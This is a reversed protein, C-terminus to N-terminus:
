RRRPAGPPADHTQPNGVRVSSVVGIHGADHVGPNGVPDVASTDTEPRSPHDGALLRDLLQTQPIRGEIHVAPRWPRRDGLSGGRPPRAPPEEVITVRVDLMALMDTMEPLTMRPLERAAAEALACLDNMRQAEAAAETQWAEREAKLRRAEGLDRELEAAAQQLAGPNDALLGAKTARTLARELRYIRAELEAMEEREVQVQGARLGLYDGVCALLEEPRSLLAVLRSWVVQEIWGAEIRHAKCRPATTATWRAARCRYQRLDRDNRWVGGFPEGCVCILRGSLPYPHNPKKVGYARRALADQVAQWQEESLIPEAQVAKAEGYRGTAVGCEVKGWAFEGRLGRSRLKRALNQHAWDSGYPTRYGLHNLQRCIEGTTLGHDVLLETALRAIRAEDEDIVLRSDKGSEVHRYGFPTRSTPWGGREAASRHAGRAMREIIRKREYQAFNGLLGSFMESEPTDETEFPVDLALRRVGCERFEREILLRTLEDRSFRDLKAVLVVDVGGERARALLRDLAPRNLLTGSVGEEVFEAVLVWGRRAVEQRCRDLQDALSTNKVQDDSSVRAYIAVGPAVPSEVVGNAKEGNTPTPARKSHPTTM